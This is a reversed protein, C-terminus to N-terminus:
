REETHVRNYVQGTLLYADDDGTEDREGREFTSKSGREAMGM